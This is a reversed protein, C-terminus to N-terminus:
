RYKLFESYNISTSDMFGKPWESYEIKDNYFIPNVKLGGSEDIGFNNIVVSDKKEKNQALYIQIGDLVHDSHTEIIIRLGISSLYALFYGISTQAAPHLHAEPNEIIFYSNPEAILGTLIIPLCYSIGFGLNTSEVFSDSIKNKLFVQAKQLRTTSEATVENGPLIYNLWANIQDKLFLSDCSSHKREPKIKYYQNALIQATYEGYVGCSPYYMDILNQSIRPGTREASLFYFTPSLLGEMEELKYLEEKTLSYTETENTGKLVVSYLEQKNDNSIDLSIDGNATHSIVSSFSGLALAYPGNLLIREGKTEICQRALLIAQLVTSKGMGNSGVLVTLDKLPIAENRFCKFNKITFIQGM